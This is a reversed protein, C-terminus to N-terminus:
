AASRASLLRMVRPCVRWLLEGLVTLLALIAPVALVGWVPEVHWYYFPAYVLSHAAYIFIMVGGARAMAGAVRPCFRVAGIALLAYTLAWVYAEIPLSCAAGHMGVLSLLTPYYARQLLLAWGAALLVRAHATLWARLRPLEVGRLAYGLVVAPLWYFSLTEHQEQGTAYTGGVVLVLVLWRYRPLLGVAMAAAMLLQFVCLDKLFWLPVNYAAQGIGLAHVWSWEEGPLFLRYLGLSILSWLLWALGIRLARQAAPVAQRPMFYGALVFFLCIAGGVPAQIWWAQVGAHLCMIVGMALCRAADVWAERSRKAAAPQM